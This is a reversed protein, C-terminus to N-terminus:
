YFLLNSENGQDRAKPCIFNSLLLEYKILIGTLIGTVQIVRDQKTTGSLDLNQMFKINKNANISLTQMFHM